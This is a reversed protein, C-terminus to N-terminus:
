FVFEISVLCIVPLLHQSLLLDCYHTGDVKAGIDVFIASTYGSELVGHRM